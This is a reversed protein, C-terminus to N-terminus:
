LMTSRQYKRKRYRYYLYLILGLGLPILAFLAFVVLFAAGINVGIHGRPEWIPESYYKLSDQLQAVLLSDGKADAEKIEASIRNYEANLHASDANYAELAEEYEESSARYEERMEDLHKESSIIMWINAFIFLVSGIALLCGFRGSAKLCGSPKKEPEYIEMSM